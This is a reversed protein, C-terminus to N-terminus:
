VRCTTSPSATPAGGVRQRPSFRTARQKQELELKRKRRTEARAKRMAKAADRAQQRAIDQPSRRTRRPLKSRGGRSEEEARASAWFSPGYSVLLEEGVRIPRTVVVKGAKNFKCNNCLTTGHSDNIYRTWNYGRQSADIYRSGVQLVYAPHKPPPYRAELQAATLTEGAFTALEHGACLPETAFVGKGHISSDRVDVCSPLHTCTLPVSPATRPRVCVTVSAVSPM